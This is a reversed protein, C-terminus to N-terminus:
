KVTISIKGFQKSLKQALKQTRLPFKKSFQLFKTKSLEKLNLEDFDLRAKGFSVLYLQDLLAKEPLAIFLDKQLTYGFFLKKKIKRIEIRNQGLFFSKSIKPSAYSFVYPIQNLIGYRALATDFSLYSPFYIQSIISEIESWNEPLIYIGKRIPFLVEKKVLRSITVKLVNKKQGLIKELDSFTFYKKNYQKLKRQIEIIQM